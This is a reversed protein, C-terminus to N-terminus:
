QQSDCTNACEALCKKLEIFQVIESWELSTYECGEVNEFNICNHLSIRRKYKNAYQKFTYYQIIKEFFLFLPSYNERIKPFYPVSNHVGLLNIFSRSPFKEFFFFLGFIKSVIRTDISFRYIIVLSKEIKQTILDFFISSTKHFIVKKERSTFSM